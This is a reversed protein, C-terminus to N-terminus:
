PPGGTTTVNPPQGTAPYQPSAIQQPVSGAAVYQPLKSLRIPPLTILHHVEDRTKQDGKHAQDTPGLLITQTTYGDHTVNLKPFVAGTGVPPLNTAFTAQFYGNPEVELSRPTLQIDAAGLPEIPQGQEDVIQGEVRWVPDEVPRPAEKVTEKINSLQSLVLVVLIFYGGFAGGLKIELGQLPGSVDSRSPLLKFLLYAPLIPLLIVVTLMLLMLAVPPM